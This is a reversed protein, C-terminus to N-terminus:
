TSTAPLTMYSYSFKSPAVIGDHMRPKSKSESKQVSVLVTGYQVADRALAMWAM